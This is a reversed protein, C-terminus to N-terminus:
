EANHLLLSLGTRAQHEHFDAVPDNLVRRYRYEVRLAVREGFLTRVGLAFGVPYRATRFSGLREQRLGGGISAFPWTAGEGMARQWSVGAELEVTDLSQLHNYGLEAEWGALGSGAGRFCGGRLALAASTSGAVSVLSGTVGLEIAGPHLRPVAAAATSMLLLALIAALTRV